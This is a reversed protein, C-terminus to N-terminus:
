QKDYVMVATLEKGKADKWKGTITQTRGDRSVTSQYRGVEKGDKRDVFELTYADIRRAAATDITPDGKHPYDKGDYKGAWETHYAKGDAGLGEFANILGNEQTVNTLTESKPTQGPPFRSKALNLKWTGVFPDDAALAAAALALVLVAFVVLRTKM